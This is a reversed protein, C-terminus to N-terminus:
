VWTTMTSDHSVTSSCIGSYGYTSEKTLYSISTIPIYFQKSMDMSYTTISGDYSYVHEAYNVLLHLKDNLLTTINELETTRYGSQYREGYYGNTDCTMYINTSLSTSYCDYYTRTASQVDSYTRDTTTSSFVVPYASSSSSLSSIDYKTGQSITRSATWTVTYGSKSSLRSYYTSYKYNTYNYTCNIVDIGLTNISKKSDIITANPWEEHYISVCQEGWKESRFYINSGGMYDLYAEINPYTSMIAHYKVLVSDSATLYNTSYTSERTLETIDSMGLSNDSSSYFTYTNAYGSSIGSYGFSSERTSYITNYTSIRTLFSTANSYRTVSQTGLQSYSYDFSRTGNNYCSTLVLDSTGYSIITANGIADTTIQSNITSKVTGSTLYTNYTTTSSKTTVGFTSTLFTKRSRSTYQYCSTGALYSSIYSSTVSVTSIRSQNLYSVVADYTLKDIILSSTFTSYSYGSRSTIGTIGTRSSFTRSESRKYQIISSVLVNYYTYYTSERTLYETDYTSKKTLVTTSSMNGANISTTYFTDVDYSSSKYEMPRYEVTNTTTQINGYYGYASSRTLTSVSTTEITQTEYISSLTITGTATTQTYYSTDYVSTGTEYSYGSISEKTSYITDTTVVQTRYSVDSTSACTYYYTDTTIAHTLYETRTTAAYTNTITDYTSKRTQYTISRQSSTLYSIGSTRSATLDASYRYTTVEYYTNSTYKTTANATYTIWSTYTYTDFVPMGSITIWGATTMTTRYGYGYTTTITQTAYVTNTTYTETYYFTGSTYRETLYSTGTTSYSPYTYTAYASITTLYSYKSNATTHYITSSKETKTYYYTDYTSKRTLYVTSTTSAGTLYGAISTSVRTLYITNTTASRTMEVSGTTTLGILEETSYSSLYTDIATRTLAETGYSSSRTMETTNSLGQSDYSSTQVTTYVTQGPDNGAKLWLNIGSNSNLTLPIYSLSNGSVAIRPKDCTNTVQYAKTETGHQIHLYM